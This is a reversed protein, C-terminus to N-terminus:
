VYRNNRWVVNVICFSITMAIGAVVVICCIIFLTINISSSIVEFSLPPKSGGVYMFVDNNVYVCVCVCMM